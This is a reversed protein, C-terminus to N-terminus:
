RRRVIIALVWMIGLVVIIAPGTPVNLVVSGFLGILTAVGGLFLSYIFTQKLNKAVLKATNSPITMFSAVLLVGIIKIGLAIVVTIMLVLIGNWLKKNKVLSHSLLDSLSIRLFRKHWVSLVVVILVFMILSVVVDGRSIALVDGFLFQEINIQYGSFFSIVIVALAMSIQAIIELLSDNNFLNKKQLFSIFIAALICAVLLAPTTPVSVLVAFAIGLFGVNSLSHTFLVERRMVVYNGIWALLMGIGVGVVLARVFFPYQLYELLINM